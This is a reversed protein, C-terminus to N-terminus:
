HITGSYFFDDKIVDFKQEGIVDFGLRNSNYCRWNIIYYYYM